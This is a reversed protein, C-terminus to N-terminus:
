WTSLATRKWSTGDHRYMYNADFAIEGAFGPDTSATPAANFGWRLYDGGKRFTIGSQQGLTPDVEIQYGTDMIQAPYFTGNGTANTNAYIYLTKSAVLNISADPNDTRQMLVVGSGFQTDGTVAELTLTDATLTNGGGGGGSSPDNTIDLVTKSIDLPSPM